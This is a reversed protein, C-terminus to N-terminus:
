LGAASAEGTAVLLLITLMIVLLVASEGHRLVFSLATEKM